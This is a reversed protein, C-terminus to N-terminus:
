PCGDISTWVTRSVGDRATKEKRRLAKRVLSFSSRGHVSNTLTRIIETARRDLQPMSTPSASVVLLTPARYAARTEQDLRSTQSAGGIFTDLIFWAMSDKARIPPISTPPLGDGFGGTV